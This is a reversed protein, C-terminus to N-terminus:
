GEPQAVSPVRFTSNSDSIATNVGDTAIVRFLARSSGQLEAMQLTLQTDKIDSAVTQWSRGADPSYLLFYTLNSGDADSARWKVTVNGSLTGGSGPSIIKVQPAHDDVTRSALQRENQSIVIKKTCPIFPVAASVIAMKDKGQSFYTSVKPEFLYRGLTKGENNLLNISFSSNVPRTTYKSGPLIMFAYLKVIPKTLDITGRVSLTQNTKASLKQSETSNNTFCPTPTLNSGAAVAQQPFHLGFITFPVSFIMSIMFLLLLINHQQIHQLCLSKVKCLIMEASNM